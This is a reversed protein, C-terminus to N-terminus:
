KVAEQYKLFHIFYLAANQVAPTLCRLQLPFKHSKNALHSVMFEEQGHQLMFMPINMNVLVYSIALALPDRRVKHCGIVLGIVYM